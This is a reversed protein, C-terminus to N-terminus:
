RQRLTIADRTIREVDGDALPDHERLFYTHPGSAVVAISGQSSQVIGLLSLDGIFLCRKGVGTCNAAASMKEIIPSVFPDRRGKREPKPAAVPNVLSSQDTTKRRRAHKAPSTSATM